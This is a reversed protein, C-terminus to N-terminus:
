DSYENKNVDEAYEEIKSKGAVVKEEKKKAFLFSNKESM